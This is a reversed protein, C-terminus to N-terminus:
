SAPAHVVRPRFYVSSDANRNRWTAVWVTDNTGPTRHKPRSGYQSTVEVAAAAVPRDPRVGPDFDAVANMWYWHDPDFASTGDSWTASHVLVVEADPALVVQPWEWVDVGVGV